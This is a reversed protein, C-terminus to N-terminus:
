RHLAAKGLAPYGHEILLNRATRDNPDQAWLFVDTIPSNSIAAAFFMHSLVRKGDSEFYADQKAGASTASTIFVDTLGEAKQMDTVYSLPDWWWSTPEGIIGQVDHVWVTGVRSRPGRTMDVLDRKNTPALVPGDTEIIQPVCVCSTKGARPGMLWIQVWEYTGYVRENTNVLVALPVGPGAGEAGLRETDAKVAAASIGAYDRKHGMSSALHDVRSGGHMAKRLLLALGTALGAVLLLAAFFIGVQAGTVPTQGKLQSALLELPDRGRGPHGPDLNGALIWLLVAVVAFLLLGLALWWLLQNGQPQSRRGARPDSLM